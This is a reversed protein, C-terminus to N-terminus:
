KKSTNENREELYLEKLVQAFADPMSKIFKGEYNVPNDGEINELQNAIDKVDVGSRLCLSSLRGIAEAKAMISGGSKGITLFTEFPKGEEDISVTIYLKGYGCKTQITQSKLIRPRQKM